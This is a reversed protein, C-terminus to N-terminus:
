VMLRVHCGFGDALRAAAVAGEDFFPAIVDVTIAKGGAAELMHELLTRDSPLGLLQGPEPLEPAWKATKFIDFVAHELNPNAPALELVTRLYAQFAAVAPGGDGEPFEFYTWIER